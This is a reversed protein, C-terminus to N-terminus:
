NTFGHPRTEGELVDACPQDHSVDYGLEVKESQHEICTQYSEWQDFKRHSNVIYMGTVLVVSAVGITIFASILTNLTQNTKAKYANRGEERGEERGEKRGEERVEALTKSM